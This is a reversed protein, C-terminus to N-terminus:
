EFLLTVLFTGNLSGKIKKYVVGIGIKKLHTKRVTSDLTGPLLSLDETGYTLSEYRYYEPFVAM